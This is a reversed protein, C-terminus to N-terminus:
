LADVMEGSARRFLILAFALLAVSAAAVVFIVGWPPSTNFLLANQFGQVIGSMPNIYVFSRIKAPLITPSYVIPTFWFLLQLVVPLAQGIDRVFVNLTGLILGIGLSLVLTVLALPFVWLVHIGPFRGFLAMVILTALFLLGCNVLAVGSTIVPLCIKPFRAKKMINGNDIFINACRSLVETFLSWGLMGGLLYISYALKDNVGPLRAAMVESLILAYIAAQALPHIIMWLGGLVSRAFRSRFEARISAFIFHRYTWIALWMNKM